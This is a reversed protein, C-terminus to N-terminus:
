HGGWSTKWGLWGGAGKSNRSCVPEKPELGPRKKCTSYEGLVSMNTLGREKESGQEKVM